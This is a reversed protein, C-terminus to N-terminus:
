AGISMCQVVKLLLYALGVEKRGGCKKCVPRYVEEKREGSEKNIFSKLLNQQVDQPWEQM